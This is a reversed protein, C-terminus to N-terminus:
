VCVYVHVVCPGSFMLHVVLYIHLTICWTCMYTCSICTGCMCWWDYVGGFIPYVKCMCAGCVCVHVMHVMLCMCVCTDPACVDVVYVCM